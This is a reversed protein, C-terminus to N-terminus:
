PHRTSGTKTVTVAELKGTNIIINASAYLKAIATGVRQQEKKLELKNNHIHILFVIDALLAFQWGALAM